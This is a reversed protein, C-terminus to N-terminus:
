FIKRYITAPQITSCLDACVPTATLDEQRHRRRRLEAVVQGAEAVEVRRQPRGVGVVHGVVALEFRLHHELNKFQVHKKLLDFKHNYLIIFGHM